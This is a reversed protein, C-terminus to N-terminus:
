KAIVTPVVSMGIRLIHEKDTDSDLLIKVPIRQVVKVFNGTANEPPFLSFSAGTGAMVSDVVGKFTKGPYTDVKIVVKHGPKVRGLQTEKYNAVIWIGELPVIAFLPQGVGIQNGVEVSRKTVYGDAPSVLKTYGKNLLAAEYARQRQDILAQQTAGTSEVQRIVAQQAERSAASQREQEQAAKLQAESVSLSTKTKDYREKSIAESKVLNGARKMDIQAQGLNAEQLLVNAKAAGMAATIEELQKRAAEIRYRLEALKAKEVELAARAEKARVEYDVDDIELLSDGKKVSQNDKIHLSKVTGPIRSAITHIRGEVFADDTSIHTAAYERYFFVFIIVIVLCVLAVPILIRRRKNNSANRTEEM